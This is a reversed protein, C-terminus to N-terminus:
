HPIMSEVRRLAWRYEILFYAKTEICNQYRSAATARDGAMDAKIGIWCEAEARHNRRTLEDEAEMSKLLLGDWALEGKFYSVLAGPWGEAGAFKALPANDQSLAALWLAAYVNDPEHEMSLAADALAEDVRGQLRRVQSRIRYAKGATPELDIAESLDDHADRLLGLALWAEARAAYAIWLTPQLEIVRGYDFACEEYRGLHFYSDARAAWALMYTDKIAVARGFAEAADAHRNLGTLCAGEYYRSQSFSPGRRSAEQFQTLAAELKGAQALKMGEEFAARAMPPQLPLENEQQASAPLALLLVAFLSLWAKM